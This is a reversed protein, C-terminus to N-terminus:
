LVRRPRAPRPRTPSAARIASRAGTRARAPPPPTAPPLPAGEQSPTEVRRKFRAELEEQALMVAGVGALALRYLYGGVGKPAEEIETTDDPQEDAM